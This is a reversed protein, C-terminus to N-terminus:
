GENNTPLLIPQILNEEQPKPLLGLTIAQENTLGLQALIALKAAKEAAEAAEKIALAEQQEQYETFENDTMERDIIEDTEVNHIRITPKTM